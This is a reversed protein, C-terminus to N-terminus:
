DRGERRNLIANIQESGCDRVLKKFGPIDTNIFDLLINRSHYCTPLPKWRSPPASKVIARLQEPTAERARKVEVLRDRWVVLEEVTKFKFKSVEHQVATPSGGGSLLETIATELAQRDDEETQKPLMQFLSTHNVADELLQPSLPEGEFFNMILKRAAMCDKFERHVQFFMDIVAKDEERQQSVRDAEKRTKMQENFTKMIQGQNQKELVPLDSYKKRRFMQQNGIAARSRM